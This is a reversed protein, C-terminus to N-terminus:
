DGFEDRPLVVLCKDRVVIKVRTDIVFGAQELWRGSLSLAPHRRNRLSRTVTLNRNKRTDGMDGDACYEYIFM